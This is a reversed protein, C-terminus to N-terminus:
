TPAVHKFMNLLPIAHLARHPVHDVRKAKFYSPNNCIDFTSNEGQTM